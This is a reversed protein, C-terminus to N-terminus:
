LVFGLGFNFNNFKFASGSDQYSKSTMNRYSKGKTKLCTELNYKFYLKLLKNIKYSIQINANFYKFIPYQIEEYKFDNTKGLHHDISYIYSFPSIQLDTSINIRNFNLNSILGIGFIFTYRFFDIGALKYKGDPFFHANEDNWPVLEGNKSWEETGYWGYGNRAEYSSYYFKLDVAPSISITKNIMLKYNYETEFFLNCKIKNENVSYAYKIESESWDSDTMKGCQVPLTYSFSFKFNSNKLKYFFDIGINASPKEEWELYSWLKESYPSYLYEGQFGFSIGLNPIIIIESFCNFKIFIFILFLFLKRMKKIFM